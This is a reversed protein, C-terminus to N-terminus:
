RVEIRPSVEQKIKRISLESRHLFNGIAVSNVWYNDLANLIDNPTSFGSTYIYKHKTGLQMVCKNFLQLNPSKTGDQKVSSILIEGGWNIPIKSAIQNLSYPEYGFVHVRADTMDMPLHLIVAQEGLLENIKFFAQPKLLTKLSIVVRDAGSRIVSNADLHSEIGGGYAIPTSLKFNNLEKFLEQFDSAPNASHSTNLILIEDVGLEQLRSVTHVLKGVPLRHEFNYSNVLVKCEIILSAGIRKLM